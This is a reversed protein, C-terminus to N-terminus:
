LPEQLHPVLGQVGLRGKRGERSPRRGQGRHQACARDGQGGSALRRPHCGQARRLDALRHAAEQDRRLQPWGFGSLILARVIGNPDIFFVARVASTESANPQVMGHKKAVEMSLDAIVPFKVEVGKMGRFEIKEKITRLWAIHSYISDISLGVLETNLEKFEDYMKAFTM